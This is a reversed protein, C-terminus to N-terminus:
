FFKDNGYHDSWYNTEATIVLSGNVGTVLDVHGASSGAASPNMVFIDGIQPSGYTRTWGSPLGWTEYQYAMLSPVYVGLYSGYAQILDVCQCGYVGDVDVEWGESVRDRGWQAEQEATFDSAAAEAVTPQILESPLVNVAGCMMVACVATACLKLIAKCKIFDGGKYKFHQKVNSHM